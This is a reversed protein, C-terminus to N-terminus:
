RQTTLDCQVQGAGRERARHEGDAIECRFMDSKHGTATITIQIKLGSTYDLTQKYEGGAVTERTHDGRDQGVKAARVWVKYPGTAETIRISVTREARPDVQKDAAPRDSEVRGAEGECALVGALVGLAAAAKVARRFRHPHHM